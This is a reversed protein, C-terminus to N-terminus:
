PELEHTLEKVLDAASKKGSFFRVIGIKMAGGVVNLSSADTRVGFGASRIQYTSSM